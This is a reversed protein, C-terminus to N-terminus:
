NKRRRRRRLSVLTFVGTALACGSSPEPVTSLIFPLNSSIETAYFGSPVPSAGVVPSYIGGTTQLFYGRMDFLAANFAGGGSADTAFPGDVGLNIGALKWVNDAPDQIFVGGSSDGASLTAETASAGHDFTAYITTGFSAGLDPRGTVTNTGWRQDNAGSGWMWGVLNGGQLVDAGRPNGRGFVVLNKGIVDTGTYLPAYTSFSTTVHWLRLDSNSSDTVADTVYVNGSFSFTDGVSGGIHKAALFYNPAIPTALFGGFSGQYQWGSGALAGGPATTNFSPDNTSDFLVARANPPCMAAVALMAAAAFRTTFFAPERKLIRPM